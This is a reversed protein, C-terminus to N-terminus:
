FVLLKSESVEWEIRIEKSTDEPASLGCDVIAGLLYMQIDRHNRM